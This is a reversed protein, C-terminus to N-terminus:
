AAGPSPGGAPAPWRLECYPQAPDVEAGSVPTFGLRGYLRLAPNNRMVHLRL